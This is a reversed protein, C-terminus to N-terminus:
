WEVEKDDPRGRSGTARRRKHGGMELLQLPSIGPDPIFDGISELAGLERLVAVLTSLKAKGAELAKITSLSLLTRGALQQQTLNKRLRLEWFRKGLETLVAKDTLSYYDM